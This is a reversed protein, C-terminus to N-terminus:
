PFIFVEFYVNKIAYHKIHLSYPWNLILYNESREDVSMGVAMGM